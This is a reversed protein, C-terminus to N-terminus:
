QYVTCMFINLQVYCMCIFVHVYGIIFVNCWCNPNFLLCMTILLAMYMFRIPPMVHVVSVNFRYEVIHKQCMLHNPQVWVKPAMHLIWTISSKHTTNQNGQCLTIQDTMFKIYMSTNNQTVESVHIMHHSIIASTDIILYFM